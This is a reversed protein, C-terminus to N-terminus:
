PEPDTSPHLYIRWMEASIVRAPVNWFKSITPRNSTGKLASLIERGIVLFRRVLLFVKDLLDSTPYRYSKGM